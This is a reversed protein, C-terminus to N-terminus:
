GSPRWPRASPRRPPQWGTLRLTSRARARRLGLAGRGDPPAGAEDGPLAVVPDGDDVPLDLEALPQLVQPGVAVQQDQQDPGLELDLVLVRHEAVGPRHEVRGQHQGDVVHDELDDGPVVLGVEGDPQEGAQQHPVQEVARGHARGRHHHALGPMTLFTAKGRSSSARDTTPTAMTSKAMWTTTSTRARSSKPIVGSKSM